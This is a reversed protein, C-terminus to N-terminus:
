GIGLRVGACIARSMACITPGYGGWIFSAGICTAADFAQEEFEYDEGKACIIKIRDSLGKESVKRKARECAHERADVGIGVIGYHKAWLVLSEAYGCGFDIVRSSKHLRLYKGFNIIKEPTSPNVLEMYRESITMLDLFEM